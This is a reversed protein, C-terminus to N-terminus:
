VVKSKIHQIDASPITKKICDIIYQEREWLREAVAGHRCNVYVVGDRYGTATADAARGAPLLGIIAEQAVELIRAATIERSIQNRHIANGLLSKLDHM